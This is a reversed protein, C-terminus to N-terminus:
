FNIWRSALTSIFFKPTFPNQHYSLVYSTFMELKVFWNKWKTRLIEDTSMHWRYTVGVCLVSCKLFFHHTLRLLASCVTVLLLWLWPLKMPSYELGKSSIHPSQSLFPQFFSFNSLKLFVSKEIWHDTLESSAHASRDELEM